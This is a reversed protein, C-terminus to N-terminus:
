TSSWLLYRRDQYLMYLWSCYYIFLWRPCYVGKLWICFVCVCVWVRVCVRLPIFLTYNNKNLPTWSSVISVPGILVNFRLGLMSSSHYQASVTLVYLVLYIIFAIVSLLNYPSCQILNTAWYQIKTCDTGWGIFTDVLYKM